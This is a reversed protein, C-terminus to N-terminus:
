ENWLCHTQPSEIAHINKWILPTEEWNVVLSELEMGARWAFPTGFDSKVKIKRALAHKGRLAV